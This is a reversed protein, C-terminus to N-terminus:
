LLRQSPCTDHVVHFLVRFRPVRKEVIVFRYQELGQLHNMDPIVFRGRHVRPFPDNAKELLKPRVLSVEPGHSDSSARKKTGPTEGEMYSHFRSGCNIPSVRNIAHRLTNREQGGGNSRFFTTEVPCSNVPPKWDSSENTM